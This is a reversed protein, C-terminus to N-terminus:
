GLVGVTLSTPGGPVGPVSVGVSPVVPLPPKVLIPAPVTVRLPALVYVPRVVTALPVKLSLPALSPPERVTLLPRLRPPEPALVILPESLILLPAETFRDFLTAAVMVTLLPTVSFLLTSLKESPPTVAVLLM